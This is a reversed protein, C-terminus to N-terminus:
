IARCWNLLASSMGKVSLPIEVLAVDAKFMRVDKSTSAGAANGGMGGITVPLIIQFRALREWSGRAVPRGWVRAGSGIARDGAASAQTKLRSVLTTYEEYVMNFNCTDVNLIYSLRAAAILLSLDLETLHSLLSLKSDAAALSSRTFASAPLELRNSRANYVASMASIQFESVSKTRTYIDQLHAKFAEDQGLAEVSANWSELLAFGGIQLMIQEDFTLEAHTLQLSAKCISWFDNLHRPQALHVYRHSFRSKVRKELSEVVDVKTTVGIVAVPAKRAQAVDFLNYLLTQRPHSAFLDIEDLIFVVANAARDDQTESLESPHSLLALLSALTDAYNTPREATSEEVEMERGLQRWIERLALKDDTQIFGNLRVIHYSGAHEQGVEALISEILTTKGTGRAGIVFMSNGEGATVTQEVIQRINKAEQEHGIFLTRRRGTLKELVIRRIVEFVATNTADEALPEAEDAVEEEELEEEPEDPKLFKRPRGRPRKPLVDVDLRPDLFGGNPSDGNHTNSSIPNNLRPRGRKKPANKIGPKKTSAAKTTSANPDATDERTSSQPTFVHAENDAGEALLRPNILGNSELRAKKHPPPRSEPENSVDPSSQKDSGNSRFASFLGFM